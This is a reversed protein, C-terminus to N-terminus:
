QCGISFNLTQLAGTSAPAVFSAAASTPNSITVSPGATQTWTYTLPDSDIDTAAGNLLVTAGANITADIGADAVPLTHSWCPITITIEDITASAIGDSSLLRFVMTRPQNTQVPATFSPNLTGAGSLTVPPGSLQAWIHNMADGDGDSATGNLNVVGGGGGM